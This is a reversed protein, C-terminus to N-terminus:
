RKETSNQCPEVEKMLAELLIIYNILDGLKEDVRGPTKDVKGDVLDMVCVLHKMLMGWLAKEPTTNGMRAAVKFNYLRDGDLAYEDAKKGLVSRILELRRDLINNFQLAKM